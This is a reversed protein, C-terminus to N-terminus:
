RDSWATQVEVKKMLVHRMPTILNNSTAPSLDITVKERGLTTFLRPTDERGFRNLLSRLCSKILSSSVAAQRPREGAGEM